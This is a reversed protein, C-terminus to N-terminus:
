GLQHKKKLQARCSRINFCMSVRFVNLVNFYYHKALTYYYPHTINVRDVLKRGCVACYREQKPNKNGPKYISSSYAGARITQRKKVLEENTM